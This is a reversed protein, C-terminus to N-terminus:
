FIDMERLLPLYISWPLCHGDNRIFRIFGGYESYKFSRHEENGAKEESTSVYASFVHEFARWNVSVDNACSSNRSGCLDYLISKGPEDKAGHTWLRHFLSSLKVKM